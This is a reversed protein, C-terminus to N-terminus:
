RTTTKRTRDAARTATTKAAAAKREAAKAKGVSARRRTPKAVQAAGAELAMLLNQARAEQAAATPAVVELSDVKAQVLAKLAASYPDTYQEANFPASLTEIWRAAEGIEAGSIDVDEHQFPFDPTRVEDPWLMTELVIVQQRV